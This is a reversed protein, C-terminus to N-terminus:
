WLAGDYKIRDGVAVTAGNIALTGSGQSLTGGNADVIDYYDGATGTGDNLEGLTSNDADWDGKPSDGSAPLLAVPIKDSGDLYPVNAAAYNTALYTGMAIMFDSLLIDYEYGDGFIVVRDTGAWTTANTLQFLTKPTTSM